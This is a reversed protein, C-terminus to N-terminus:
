CAPSARAAAARPACQNGGKNGGGSVLFSKYLSSNVDYIMRVPSPAFARHRASTLLRRAVYSATAAARPPIAAASLQALM